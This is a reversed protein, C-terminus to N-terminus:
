NGISENFGIDQIKGNSHVNVSGNARVAGFSLYANAPIQQQITTQHRVAQKSAAMAPGATVLISAAVVALTFKNLM